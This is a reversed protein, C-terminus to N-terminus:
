NTAKLITEVVLPTEEYGHVAISDIGMAKIPYDNGGEELNDGVFLVNEKGLELTELLKKMGYSKDIGPRTVDVSTSGGVRFEFDTVKSAALDRIAQKKSKDPDWAKKEDAPAKQGLASFTIQSERDEIIDGYTDKELFGLEEASSQLADIIRKKDKEEIDEAYIQHWEREIDEYRYYRTGCTPMLHLNSLLSHKVHLNAILQNQFQEYKGGSIVCVQFRELLLGLLESIDDKIPSKSEALTDDLDFVILKKM